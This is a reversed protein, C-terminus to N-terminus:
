VQLHVLKHIDLYYQTFTSSFQSLTVSTKYFRFSSKFGGSVPCHRRLNSYFVLLIEPDSPTIWLLIYWHYNVYQNWNHFCLLKWNGGPKQYFSKKAKKWPANCTPTLYLIGFNISCVIRSTCRCIIKIFLPSDIIWFSSTRHPGDYSM